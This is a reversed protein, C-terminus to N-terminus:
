KNYERTTRFEKHESCIFVLSDAITTYNITAKNECYSYACKERHYKCYSISTGEKTVYKKASDDICFTSNEYCEESSSCGVFTIGLLFVSLILSIIKALSNKTLRRMSHSNKTICNRKM